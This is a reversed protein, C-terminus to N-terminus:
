TSKLDRHHVGGGGGGGDWGIGGWGGYHCITLSNFVRLKHPRNHRKVHLAVLRGPFRETPEFSVPLLMYVLIIDTKIFCQLTVMTIFSPVFNNVHKIWKYARKSFKSFRSSAEDHREMRKCPVDRSGRSPNVHSKM